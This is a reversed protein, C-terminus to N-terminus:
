GKKTKTANKEREWESDLHRGSSCIGERRGDAEGSRDLLNRPKGSRGNCLTDFPDGSIGEDAAHQGQASHFGLLYIFDIFNEGTVEEGV